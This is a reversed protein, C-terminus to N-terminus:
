KNLDLCCRFGVAYDRWGVPHANLSFTCTPSASASSAQHPVPAWYFGMWPYPNAADIAAIGQAIRRETTAGAFKASITIEAVNGNLDLVGEPTVCEPRAGSPESRNLTSIEGTFADFRKKYDTITLRPNAPNLISFEPKDPFYRIYFDQLIGWYPGRVPLSDYNCKAKTNSIHKTAYWDADSPHHASVDRGPDFVAGYGYTNKGESGLCARVWETDTCLRKGREKCYWEAEWGIVGLFPKVGEQDPAEFRDMCFSTVNALTYSDSKRVPVMDVPCDGQAILDGNPAKAIEGVKQPPATAGGATGAPAPASPGGTTPIPGGGTAGLDIVPVEVDADAGPKVRASEEVRAREAAPDTLASRKISTIKIAAPAVTNPNIAALITVSGLVLLLGIAANQIVDKGTQVGAGSSSMIYLFGGYVIMVAAATVAIGSAYRQMASLYQALYPIVLDEGQKVLTSSFELGPIPINPTLGGSVTETPASPPEGPATYSAEAVPGQACVGSDVPRCQTESLVTTCDGLAKIAANTTQDKLTACDKTTQICINQTPSATAKCGCCAALAVTPSTILFLVATAACRILLPRIGTGGTTM